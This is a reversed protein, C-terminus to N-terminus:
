ERPEMVVTVPLLGRLDEYAGNDFLDALTIAEDPVVYDMGNVRAFGVGVSAHDCGSARKMAQALLCGESRFTYARMATIATDLDCEAVTVTLDKM